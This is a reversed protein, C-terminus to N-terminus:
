KDRNCVYMCFLRSLFHMCRDFSWLACSQRILNLDARHMKLLLLARRVSAEDSRCKRVHGSFALLACITCAFNLNVDFYLDVKQAWFASNKTVTLNQAIYGGGQQGPMLVISRTLWFAHSAAPNACFEVALSLQSGALATVNRRVPYVVPRGSIFAFLCMLLGGRPRSDTLQALGLKNVWLGNRETCFTCHLLKYIIGCSHHKISYLM